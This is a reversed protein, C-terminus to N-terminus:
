ADSTGELEALIGAAILAFALLKREHDAHLPLMSLFLSAEVARVQRFDWGDVTLRARFAARMWDPPGGNYPLLDLRLADDIEISFLGNNVFDYGGCISHSFKALDYLPHMLADDRTIAGRPDILRFLGIRGDFLINSLCPDGHSFSLHAADHADLAAEILPVAREGLRALGGTVGGAELCASVRAGQAPGLFHALRTQMKAVIQSQGAKRVEARSRADRPRARLFAFFQDLLQDFQAETFSGLVFQLGADPVRLHEMRYSARGDREAYGFTPVLFRQLEPPAHRFFGHEARMKAIDTSSKVFVGQEASLRNFDRPETAGSLFGRLADPQRLDLCALPAALPASDKQLQLVLSRREKRGTASLLALADGQTLAMPADDELVPGILMSGLAFRMKRIVFDLRGLDMPAIATPLRLWLWPGRAAEIRRLLAEAEDARRLVTVEDAGASVARLEDLYRRRRRLLDGFHIDGVLRQMDEPLPERDDIIACLRPRM